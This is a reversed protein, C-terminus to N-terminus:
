VDIEIGTLTPAVSVVQGNKIFIKQGVTAQGKVRVYGGGQLEIRVGDTYVAVVTGVQTRVVPLLGRLRNYINM